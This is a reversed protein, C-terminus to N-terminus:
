TFYAMINFSYDIGISNSCIRYHSLNKISQDYCSGSM